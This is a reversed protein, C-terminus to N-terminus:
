RSRAIRRRALLAGALLMTSTLLLSSPEPASSAQPAFELAEVYGDVNASNIGTSNLYSFPDIYTGLAPWIMPPELDTFSAGLGIGAGGPVPNPEVSYGAFISSTPTIATGSSNLFEVFAGDFNSAEIADLGTEYTNWDNGTNSLRSIM